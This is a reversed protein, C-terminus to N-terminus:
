TKIPASWLPYRKVLFPQHNKGFSRARVWLGSRRVRARRHLTTIRTKQRWNRTLKRDLTTPKTCIIWLKGGSSPPVIYPTWASFPSSEVEEAAMDGNKWMLPERGNGTTWVKLLREGDKYETIVYAECLELREDTTSFDDDNDKTEHRTSEASTEEAEGLLKISDPHFGMAKLEGKSKKARHGCAPCGDLTVKSWRPTIFFENQPIPEIEYQKETKTCRVRVNIPEPEGDDGAMPAPVGGESLEVGELREIEYDGGQSEIQSYVVMFEPLTLDEYEEITVREKEVWGSRVYANQEILGEKFWTAVTAFSNNEERFLHHIISTEQRAAAKDEPGVPSFVALDDNSTFIDMAEAFIAEVTDAVDTALYGSAGKKEDGYPEAMYRDFLDERRHRETNQLATAVPKLAEKLKEETLKM